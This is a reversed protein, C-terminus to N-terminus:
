CSDIKNKISDLEKIFWNLGDIFEDDDKWSFFKYRLKRDGLVLLTSDILFGEDFIEIMENKDDYITLNLYIKEIEKNDYVKYCKYIIKYNIAEVLNQLKIYLDSNKLNEIEYNCYLSLVKLLNENM